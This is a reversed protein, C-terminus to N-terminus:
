QELCDQLVKNFDQKNKDQDQNTINNLFDELSANEKNETFDM